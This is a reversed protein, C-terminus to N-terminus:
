QGELRHRYVDENSFRHNGHDVDKGWFREGGVAIVRNADKDKCSFELGVLAKGTDRDSCKWGHEIGTGVVHCATFMFTDDPQGDDIGGSRM